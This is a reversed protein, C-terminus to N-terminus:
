FNLNVGVSIIRPVPYLNNGSDFTDREPDYGEYDKGVITFVNQANAYFYIKQFGLRLVLNDPIAYGIQVNKLKVFSIDHVWFSSESNDWSNDFKISPIDTDTNEPTWANRWSKNITPNDTTVNTFNNQTYAHVGGIGQFIINLDFGKYRFSSTLGFTFKPITNGLDQKDEFGLKGDNNVDEFKLNGAKPTYSNANMHEQAEADTQYIGIAKYGYLIKYSYGERILYLQDPSDGGRFKTVENDVYTFNVGLNFGLQDRKLGHNDYNAVFEFGKNFMEGVNEYPPTLGGMTLPIPLQVIIDSTKKDFYDAEISIQNELFGIDIGFDLTSTTEWTINEDVLSTVAAGPAFSGGYNYSLDNNQDIVTLYPWYGAINQNGLQGWSARLKLNSFTHADQMFAEDSLRWGASFGPFVGWRNGKKFRSSADARINAEFLYKDMLTYNLRGFYSFTRYGNMNGSGQIGSTGADVQTLGEKPADTRRAYLNKITSGELQIGAIASINHIESFSKNYNLTAFVNNDLTSVQGRNIELGERNYNKTITEVGMDTYGYLSQNFKDTLVWSGTSAFTTNLSLDDSFKIEASANVNLFNEETKTSGNAADILPNRNDYLLNGDKDIAQVSGFRGDKTYPAIFPTAGQLMTWVRGLLGYTVDAYPAESVRRIYNLRGSVKFWNNVQNELNARIGYRESNTNPVMGDQNLYNFSLFSASKATGGSISLNHEQIMAPKFLEAFWDTSPYKYPDNGNKFDNILYDPFLPSSGGNALAQNWTEMAEVSNDIMNYHRGLTQVGIYSSLNIQMKEDKKGMKTTVLVVGNAAKSGYIAASAADKLVSITEIDNPNLQDFSGEVGDIIVLPNSNNMTGWGRVRLQAGDSGPQGSNQSVWVGSVKGGLAQSANTIPRNDLEQDFKVTSISGTLNIKKQEGYGVVVIEQLSQIDPSLTVNLTTTNGVTREEKQYGVSSFVLIADESPVDITYDGNVDTVTGQTTGKVIVNVGPLGENDESSTVKGTITIGDIIVEIKKENRAGPEMKQVTINKNVQRFKLNSAQSIELLIDRVTVKHVEKSFRITRNLDESSYCFSFDTKKEITRFLDEISIENVKLDIYVEQVSKITQANLNAAWLTNILVCQLMIGRFSFKSLMIIKDLLGNKM